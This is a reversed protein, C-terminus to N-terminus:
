MPRGITRSKDRRVTAIPTRRTTSSPSSRVRRRRNRSEPRSSALTKSCSRRSRAATLLTQASTKRGTKNWIMSSQFQADFAALAAEPGPNASFQDSFFGGPSSEQLAPDYVTTVNGSLVAEPTVAVTPRAALTQSSNLTIRGGLSRMIKSNELTIRTAEELSIDWTEDFKPNDLTFPARTREVESLSCQSVDPHEINTAMGVYHSMSGDEHFYFPQQPNCGSFLMASVLVALITHSHRRMAMGEEILLLTVDPLLPRPACDWRLREHGCNRAEISRDYTRGPGGLWSVAVCVIVFLVTEGRDM